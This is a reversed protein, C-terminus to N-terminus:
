RIRRLLDACNNTIDTLAITKTDLPQIVVVIENMKFARIDSMEKIDLNTVVSNTSSINNDFDIFIVDDKKYVCSSRETMVQYTGYLKLHGQHGEACGMMVLWILLLYKM